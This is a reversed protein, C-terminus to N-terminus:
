GPDGLPVWKRARAGADAACVTGDTLENVRASLYIAGEGECRPGVADEARASRRADDPGTSGVGLPGDVSRYGGAVVRSLTLAARQGPISARRHRSRVSSLQATLSRGPSSSAGGSACAPYLRDVIVAIGSVSDGHEGHIRRVGGSPRGTVAEQGLDIAADAVPWIRVREQRRRGWDKVQKIRRPALTMHSRAVAPDSPATSICAIPVLLAAMRHSLWTLTRFRDPRGASPRMKGVGLVHRDNLEHERKM